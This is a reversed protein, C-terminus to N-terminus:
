CLLLQRFGSLQVFGRGQHLAAFRGVADPTHPVRIRAVKARQRAQPHRAGFHFRAPWAPIM